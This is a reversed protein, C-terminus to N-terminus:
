GQGHMFTIYRLIELIISVHGAFLCSVDEYRFAVFCFIVLWGFNIKNIAVSLSVFYTVTNPKGLIVFAALAYTCVLLLIIHIPNILPIVTQRWETTINPLLCLNRVANYSYYNYLSVITRVGKLHLQLSRTNAM